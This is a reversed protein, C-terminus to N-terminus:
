IKELTENLISYLYTNVKKGTKNEIFNKYGNLQVLYNEDKTNKLKYDIIDIHDIYELMLDIVGHKIINDEEYVFEYEKYIKCDNIDISSIFKLIKENYNNELLPNTFDVTELLYHMYTGFNMNNIEEISRIEHVSKSFHKEEIDTANINIKYHNIKDNTAELNEKYNYQKILDYDKTLNLTDININQIYKTMKKKISNMISVFSNYKLRIQDDVKDYLDIEEDELSTVMIMKEKARTVAVYFLRIRESIDDELYKNKFLEKLITDGIGDNYFPTIIGYKNDFIINDKIDSTNFKKFFGSFYCISFELGKSKHINMINVSGDVKTNLSYRIESNYSEKFYDPLDYPTYGLNSLSEFLNSINDFRIISKEVNGILIGKEFFNFKTIIVDLLEKNSMNDLEECIDIIIKYIDDDKFTDNKFINFIQQDTYEFLYSRAISMFYYKFEQDFVQEKVKIILNIINKLISIDSEDKLKEDQWIVVPIGLYEFIKSYIDFASGRDMIICADGYNMDRLQNTKKDIVQYHNEVKNKIDNGIIFAEIEDQTYNKYEETKKYNLIDIDYSQADNKNNYTLNGFVMRHSQQYEANGIKEDMISDFIENINKLVEERSRFNKLLDIKYGNIGKSYNNYKTRFIDPNANRFRYISQKIDGVMYVNNNSILSIFDEQLDSTDQYEDVMIENYFNKLESQVEPNEKVIKIAMKAIDTFTYTEHTEKYEVIKKDLQRILEIIVEVYEKTSLLNSKLEELTYHCLDSLESVQKKLDNVKNKLQEEAKMLRPYSSIPLSNRIDNYNNSNILPNFLEYLKMYYNGDALIEIDYLTSAINNKKNKILSEYERILSNIYEDSFYQNLYNDIYENKDSKLDIKDNIKIIIDKIEKDDKVCFTAIFNDFKPNGYSHEFIDDIIRRKEIDLVTNEVIKLSSSINLLYHYKKVISQAYSDFTTIYAADIYDLQKLLNEKKIATRIRDKMEAAAANTFTLVLLQDINIGDRLKRIVRETLVATKGSGAGASVIINSGEKDIAEQQEKTWKTMM